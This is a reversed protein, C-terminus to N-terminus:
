RRIQPAIRSHRGVERRRYQRMALAITTEILRRPVV